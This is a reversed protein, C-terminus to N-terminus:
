ALVEKLRARAAHMRSKVTGVPCSLIEGIEQQSFGYYYTLEIVAKLDAPLKALAANVRKRDFMAEIGSVKEDALEGVDDLNVHSRERKSSRLSKLATRYAIGFIWTSVKSRFEFGAAKSWVTVMTDNTVEEARDPAHVIRLVFRYVPAHRRRHLAAFAGSDGTAVLRLLREDERDAPKVRDAIREWVEGKCM